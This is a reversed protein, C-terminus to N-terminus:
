LLDSSCDPVFEVDHSVFQELSPVSWSTNKLIKGTDGCKIVFLNEGRKEYIPNPYRPKGSADCDIKYSECSAIAQDEDAAAKSMNSRHVENFADIIKISMRKGELEAAYMLYFLKGAVELADDYKDYSEFFEKAIKEVPRGSGLYDVANEWHVIDSEEIEYLSHFGAVVSLGACVYLLDCLADAFEIVDNKDIADRMERLEEYILNRRLNYHQHDKGFTNGSMYVPHGFTTHFETVSDIFLRLNKAFGPAVRISNIQQM